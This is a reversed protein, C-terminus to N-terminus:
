AARKAHRDHWFAKLRGGANLCRLAMVAGAGEETWFMGSQKCRQGIVSRCGAEVVGSGIFLGLKRFTGYRMRGTNHVFYGLEAEVAEQRSTAAAEKRAQRIIREVGDALLMKGWHHRRRAFRRPDNKTLLAEILSELHELGHYSDVIQIARPFYDLGMKELGLAGDVLLVVQDAGGMGRRLAERRLGIGFDSPSEFGALYTTSAHDRMPRGQDDLQHQTFVCGLAAMRTKARGDPAKGKRGELEERRMPVGTYDAEVYLVKADCPQPPSERRLWKAADPGVRLVERQIQREGVVIGGVEELHLGAKQYSSEDSGELCILRSLCPTHGGELGLADDAPHHGRKKGPHYYYARTLISHGFIGQIQLTHRGKPIEGPKPQYAADIKDAAEQLLQGVLEAAPKFIAARLLKELDAVL